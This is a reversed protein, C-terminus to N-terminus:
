SNGEIATESDVLGVTFLQFVTHQFQYYLLINKDRNKGYIKWGKTEILLEEYYQVM